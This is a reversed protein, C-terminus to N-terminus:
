GFDRGGSAMLSRFEEETMGSFVGGLYQMSRKDVQALKYTYFISAGLDLMGVWDRDLIARRQEDTLDFRGCYAEEDSRFDRRNREDKFSACLRNIAAGRRGEAIDFVYTDKARPANRGVSGDPEAAAPTTM